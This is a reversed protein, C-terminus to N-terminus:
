RAARASFSDLIRLVTARTGSGARRGLAVHIQFFRGADRFRFVYSPGLCEFGAFDTLAFHKPRPPLNGAEGASGYEWGYIFAGDPPIRDLAEKPACGDSGRNTRPLRYSAVALVQVPSTVHTLPRGTADWGAPYRVSVGDARFVRALRPGSSSCAAALSAVFLLVAIRVGRM